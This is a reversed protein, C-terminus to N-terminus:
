KLLLLLALGGGVLLLTSNDFGGVLPTSVKGAPASIPVPGAPPTQGAPVGSGALAQIQRLLEAAQAKGSRLINADDGHQAQYVYQSNSLADVIRQANNVADARSLQGSQLTALIQNLTSTAQNVFAQIQASGRAQGNMSSGQGFLLPLTVQTAAAGIQGVADWISGMTMDGTLGVPMAGTRTLTEWPTEIEFTPYADNM